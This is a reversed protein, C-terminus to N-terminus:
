ILRPGSNATRWLYTSLFHKLDAIRRNSNILYIACFRRDASRFLKTETVFEDFSHIFKRLSYDHTLGVCCSGYFTIGHFATVCLMQNTYKDYKHAKLTQSCANARSMRKSSTRPKAVTSTVHRLCHADRFSLAKLYNMEAHLVKMGRQPAQM